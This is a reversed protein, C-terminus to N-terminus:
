LQSQPIFALARVRGVYGMITFTVYLSVYIVYIMLYVFYM